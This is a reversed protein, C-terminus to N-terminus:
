VKSRKQLVSVVDKLTCNKAQLLVLYHYLLDSAEGLFLEKNDDKAEIVLEVAEEGVKQAIKNIGKEFLKSTYSSELPANKRKEIIGELEDLFNPSKNKEGFCTDSGTHCVPGNPEVKILLTDKDCDKLIEKVNLFNGSEEGKTWLRDKSRSFFTVKNEAKTKLYAEENMFGLMLVVNTNADQIITPVLGNTYKNFDIKM